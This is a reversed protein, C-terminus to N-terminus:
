PQIQSILNINKLEVGIAGFKIEDDFKYYGMFPSSLVRACFKENNNFTIYEIFRVDVTYFLDERLSKATQEDTFAYLDLEIQNLIGRKYLKSTLSHQLKLVYKNNCKEVKYLKFPLDLLIGSDIAIKFDEKLFDNLEENILSNSKFGPFKITVSDIYNEIQIKKIVATKDKSEQCSLVLNLILVLAVLKVESM